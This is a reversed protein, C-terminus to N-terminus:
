LPLLAQNYKRYNSNLEDLKGTQIRQHAIDIYEKNIESGIFFRNTKKCVSATSGTGMFPDYIIDNKKSFNSVIKFILQEPFIAKHKKLTSKNKQILWLDELTGKDFNANQFKRSISDNKDFILILETRRNLVGSQISPEANGKDWVIIEKLYESFDGIMKFISKKSGTVIQVNYFVLPSVRLLESLVKTHFINYEKIPLNDSFNNYKTTLEKTIQRSCYEKNRIRLNMNYPPSTIVIDISDDSFRKLTTLCCENYINNLKM